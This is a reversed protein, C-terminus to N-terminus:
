FLETFFDIISEFLDAFFEGIGGIIDALGEPDQFLFYVVFAIVLIIIIKRM